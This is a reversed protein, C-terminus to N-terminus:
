CGPLSESMLNNKVSCIPIGKDFDDCSTSTELVEDTIGKKKSWQSRKLVIDSLDSISNCHRM